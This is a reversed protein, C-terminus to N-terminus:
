NGTQGDDGSMWAAPVDIPLDLFMQAYTKAQPDYRLSATGGGGLVNELVFNMAHFGPLLFREVTGELYHAFFAGVREATVQGVLLPYYDAKRAIIGINAHNGKDGSRGWALTRLPVTVM